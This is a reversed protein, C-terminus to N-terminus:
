AKSNQANKLILNSSNFRRPQNIQHDRRQMVRQTRMSPGKQRSARSSAELERLRKVQARRLDVIQDAMKNAMMTAEPPANNVTGTSEQAEQLARLLKQHEEADLGLHAAGKTDMFITDPLV